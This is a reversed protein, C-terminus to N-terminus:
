KNAVSKMVILKVKFGVVIAIAPLNSNGKLTQTVKKKLRSRVETKNLDTGSIELRFWNELDDLSVDIPAVYYDSGTLTEARQVAFLKRVEEVSAIAFAYAGDRIRDSKNAWARKTKDDVEQWNVQVEYKDSNDELSFNVPSIHYKDLCVSAAQIYYDAVEPTLGEHRDAMNELPLIRLSM